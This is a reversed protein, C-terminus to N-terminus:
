GETLGEALGQVVGAVCIQNVMKALQGAGVEGIHTIARAYCELVPKAREINEAAGGLMITLQAKEAGAQGGSLPADIFGIGCAQSKADLQRALSASATTHDILLAGAEMGALAGGSGTLVDKVDNDNGVCCFVMEASKVADYPTAAGTGAYQGLWSEVKSFTRNYVCVDHGCRSLHGAMPYGMVGLGIFAVRMRHIRKFKACM